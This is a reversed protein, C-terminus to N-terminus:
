ALGEVSPNTARKTVRVGEESETIVEIVALVRNQIDIRVVMGFPTHRRQALGACPEFERMGIGRCVEIETNLASIYVVVFVAM